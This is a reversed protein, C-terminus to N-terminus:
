TEIEAIIYLLHKTVTKTGNQIVTESVFFQNLFLPIKEIESESDRIM